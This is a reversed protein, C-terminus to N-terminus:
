DRALTQGHCPQARNYSQHRESEYPMEKRASGGMIIATPTHVVRQVACLGSVHYILGKRMLTHLEPYKNFANLWHSSSGSKLSSNASPFFLLLSPFTHPRM